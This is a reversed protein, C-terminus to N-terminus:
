FFCLSKEMKYDEMLYGHGIAIDEEAVIRFGQKKYFGLAKNFKNVNLSITTSENARALAEVTQLLKQGAGKGQSEPLLYLKHLRTVEVGMYHHEYSAFGLCIDQEKALLFHHNKSVMNENLAEISYFLDLMYELQAKSLIQGYANPWTKYAMEQIAKCDNATAAVITIM